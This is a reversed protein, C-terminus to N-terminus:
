NPIWEYSGLGGLALWVSACAAAGAIATDTTYYRYYTTDSLLSIKCTGTRGTATCLADTKFTGTTCSSQFSSRTGGDNEVCSQTTTATKDCICLTDTLNCKVTAESKKCGSFSLALLGILLIIKKM